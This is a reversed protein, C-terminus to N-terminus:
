KEWLDDTKDQRSRWPKKGAVPYTACRLRGVRGTSAGGRIVRVPAIDNMTFFLAVSCKVAPRPMVTLDSLMYQKYDIYQAPREAKDHLREGV